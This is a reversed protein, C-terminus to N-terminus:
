EFTPLTGPREIRVSKDRASEGREIRVAGRSVGCLKALLRELAANAKGDVPPAQLRVLLRGGRVGALGTRKANPIVRIELILDAGDWRCFDPESM